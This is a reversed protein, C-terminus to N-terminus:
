SFLSSHKLMFLVNEESSIDEKGQAKKINVKIVSREETSKRTYLQHAQKQVASFLGMVQEQELGKNGM